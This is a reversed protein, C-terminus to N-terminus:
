KGLFKISNLSKCYAWKGNELKGISIVRSIPVRMVKALENINVFGRDDKLKNYGMHLHKIFQAERRAKSEQKVEDYTLSDDRSNVFHDMNEQKTVWELNEVRNDTKDFNKHNIEPKNGPNPIFTEAIIRHILGISCSLYDGRINSPRDYGTIKGTRLNRIRGLNSVQYHGEHGKVDKWIEEM